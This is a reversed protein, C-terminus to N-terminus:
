VEPRVAGHRLSVTHEILAPPHGSPAREDNVLVADDPPLDHVRYRLGPIEGRVLARQGLQASGARASIRGSARNGSRCAALRGPVPVSGTSARRGRQGAPAPRGPSGPQGRSPPQSPGSGTMRHAAAPGCARRPPTCRRRARGPPRDRRPPRSRPSRRGAALRSRARGPPPHPAHGPGPERREARRATLARAGRGAAVLYREATPKGHSIPLRRAPRGPVPRM